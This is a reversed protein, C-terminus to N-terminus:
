FVHRSRRCAKLFNFFETKKSAFNQTKSFVRPLSHTLVHDVVVFYCVSSRVSDMHTQYLTVKTPIDECLHRTNKSKFTRMDALQLLSLNPVMKLTPTLSMIWKDEWIGSLVCKGQYSDQMFVVGKMNPLWKVFNALASAKSRIPENRCQTSKGQFFPM